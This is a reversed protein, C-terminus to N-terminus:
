SILSYCERMIAERLAFCTNSKDCMQATKRHNERHDTQLEKHIHEIQPKHQKHISLNGEGEAWCHNTKEVQNLFNQYPMWTAIHSAHASGLLGSYGWWIVPLVQGLNGVPSCNGKEWHKIENELPLCSRFLDWPFFNECLWQVSTSAGPKSIVLAINPIYTTLTNWKNECGM